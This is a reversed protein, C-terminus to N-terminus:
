KKPAKHHLYTNNTFNTNKPITNLRSARYFGRRFFRVVSDMKCLMRLMIEHLIVRLVIDHLLPACHFGLCCACVIFDERSSVYSFFLLLLVISANRLFCLLFMFALCCLLIFLCLYSFTIFINVLLVCLSIAKPFAM